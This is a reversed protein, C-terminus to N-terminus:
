AQRFFKAKPDDTPAHPDPIEVHLAARASPTMGFHQELRLLKDALTSAIAVYPTVHVGAVAGEETYSIVLEGKEALLTEMKRWRVWLTCYRALAHQDLRTLVGLRALQPILARWVKRADADLWAPCPPKEAAPPAPELPRTKARWSGRMKLVNTPTPLPGRKGM